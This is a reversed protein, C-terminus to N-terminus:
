GVRRELVARARRIVPGTDLQELIALAEDAVEAAAAADHVALLEARLVQAAAWEYRDSRALSPEVVDLLRMAEAVDGEAAAIRAALHYYAIAAESSVDEPPLLATARDRLTRAADLDGLGLHARAAGALGIAQTNWWGGAAGQDTLDTWRRLATELEGRSEAVVASNEMPQLARTASGMRKSIRLSEQLKKEASEWEGLRTLLVALNNLVAAENMPDGIEDFTTAADEFSQAAVRYNGLKVHVIAIVNRIGAELKRDTGAVSHLGENLPGLADRPDAGVIALARGLAYRAQVRLEDDGDADALSLAEACRSIAEASDTGPLNSWLWLLHCREATARAAEARQLVRQLEAELEERPLSLQRQVLLVRREIAVAEAEAREAEAIALAEEFARQAETLRGVVRNADGLRRLTELRPKGAPANRLARGLLGIADRHAYIRSARDAGWLAFKVARETLRGEDCHVALRHAVSEAEAGYVSELIEVMKRHLLIRRKGQLQASLVDQILSHAFRFLSTFDGDPLDRTEVFQVLRHTRAIAEIDEELKLEDVDLLRALMTVEFEDGQVSAYELMRYTDPDLRQLRREIAAEASRPVEIADPVRELWWEGDRAAAIGQDASWRLLEQFFLPNAGARAESWELLDRSPPGGLVRTALGRLADRDLPPLPLEEAVAYRELELRAERIPHKTVDVDAPRYTGIIVIRESGVRRGIHALLSVTAGDAWHLDDLLLLIPREAAAAFLLETYQFFLAEESAATATAGSGLRRLEVATSVTAAIVGGALPIASIWTPALEGALKRFQDWRSGEEADATMLDHFAEVFPQYPEAAGYQESCAAHLVLLDPVRERTEAQVQEILTSKGAGAEGTIFVVRGRGSAAGDLLAGLRSRETVRGVFDTM